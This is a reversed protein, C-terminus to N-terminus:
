PIAFTWPWWVVPEATGTPATVAVTTTVSAFQLTRIVQYRKQATSATADQYFYQNILQPTFTINSGSVNTVRVFEYLGASGVSTSGNGSGTGAGYTNNNSSNITGDQMQMVMLLDGIAVTPTYGRTDRTGLVLTTAGPNLNPQASGDYYDNVIGGSPITTLLLEPPACVQAAALAPALALLSSAFLRLVVRALWPRHSKDQM